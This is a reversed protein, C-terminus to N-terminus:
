DDPVPSHLLLLVLQYGQQQLDQRVLLLVYQVMFLVYVLGLQLQLLEHLELLLDGLQGRRYLQDDAALGKGAFEDLYDKVEPIVVQHSFTHKEVLLFLSLFLQGNQLHCPPADLKIKGTRSRIHLAM